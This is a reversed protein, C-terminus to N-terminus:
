SGSCGPTRQPVPHDDAHGSRTIPPAPGSASRAASTGGPRGPMGPGSWNRPRPLAAAAPRLGPVGPGARALRRRRGLHSGLTGAAAHRAAIRATGPLSCPCHRDSLGPCSLRWAPRSAPWPRPVSWRHGARVPGPWRSRRRPSQGEVTVRSRSRRTSGAALPRGSTASRSGTLKMPMWWGRWAWAVSSILRCLFSRCPRVNLGGGGCALWRVDGPCHGPNGARPTRCSWGYPSHPRWGCALWADLRAPTRPSRSVHSVPWPNINIHGTPLGDLYHAAPRSWAEM